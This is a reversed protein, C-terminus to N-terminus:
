LDKLMITTTVYAVASRECSVANCGNRACDGGAYSLIGDVERVGARPAGRGGPVGGALTM